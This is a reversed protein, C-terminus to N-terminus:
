VPTNPLNRKNYVLQNCCVGVWGGGFPLLKVKHHCHPCTITRPDPKKLDKDSHGYERYYSRSDATKMTSIKHETYVDGILKTCM